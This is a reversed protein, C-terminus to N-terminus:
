AIALLASATRGHRPHTAFGVLVTEFAISRLCVIHQEARLAVAEIVTAVKPLYPNDTM